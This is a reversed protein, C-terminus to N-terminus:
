SRRRPAACPTARAGKACSENTVRRTALTSSADTYTRMAQTDANPCPCWLRHMMSYVRARALWLVPLVRARAVHMRTSPWPGAAELRPWSLGSQDQGAAVCCSAVMSRAAGTGCKDRQAPGNRRPAQARLLTQRRRHQTDSFPRPSTAPTCQGVMPWANTM